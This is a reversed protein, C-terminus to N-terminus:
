HRPSTRRCPLCRRVSNGLDRRFRKDEALAVLDRRGPSDDRLWGVVSISDKRERDAVPVELALLLDAVDLDIDEDQASVVVPVGDARLRDALSTILDLLQASRTHDHEWSSARARLLESLWAATV